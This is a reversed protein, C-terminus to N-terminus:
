LCSTEENEDAVPLFKMAGDNGDTWLYDSDGDRDIFSVRYPEDDDDVEEIVGDQLGPLLYYEEWDEGFTFKVKMGVHYM